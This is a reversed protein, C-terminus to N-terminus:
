DPDRMPGDELSGERSPETRPEAAWRPPRLRRRSLTHLYEIPRTLRDVVRELEDSGNMDQYEKLESLAWNLDRVVRPNIPDGHLADDVRALLVRQWKAVEEVTTILEAINREAASGSQMAKVDVATAIPSDVAGNVIAQTLHDIIALRCDNASKLDTHDFFITRMQAIDFPLRCDKEAILAVPMRATHRVAMEYFVNANLYTLDIVAAKSSLVHEIVQLTIQGPEAIKDARIAVLGLEEAAPTVIYDLVGDSRNREPSGEPGIPAIFFCEEEFAPLETAM